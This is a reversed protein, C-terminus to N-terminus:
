ASAIVRLNIDAFEKIYAETVGLLTLIDNPASAKSLGPQVIFIEYETPIENKVVNLLKILDASCGKELRSCSHADKRKTKRRLLHNIFEKGGKHKWHVSKQAQGCVEYFNKIQNSV